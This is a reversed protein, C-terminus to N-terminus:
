PGFLTGSANMSRYNRNLGLGYTGGAQFDVEPLLKEGTAIVVPHSTVPSAKTASGCSTDTNGSTPAAAVQGKAPGSGGRSAEPRFPPFSFASSPSHAEPLPRKGVLEQTVPSAPNLVQEEGWARVATVSLLAALAAMSYFSKM